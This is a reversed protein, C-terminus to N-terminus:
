FGSLVAASDSLCSFTAGKLGVGEDEPIMRDLQAQFTGLIRARAQEHTSRAAMITKRWSAVDEDMDAMWPSGGWIM